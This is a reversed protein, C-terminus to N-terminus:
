NNDEKKPAPAPLTPPRVPNVETQTVGTGSGSAGPFQVIRSKDGEIITIRPGVGEIKPQTVVETKPAEKKVVPPLLEVPPHEEVDVRAGTGTLLGQANVKIADSMQTDGYKRLALSLPGLEKALQVKLVDEPKLAVTVVHGPMAQGQGNANSQQDVALVLVNQLLVHAFSDTDTGRRITHMIDVRSMPLSAFGAASAEMNVRIGIARFGNSLAWAIGADKDSHLDEPTIFDGARLSRKLMKNKLEEVKTIANKPEEGKIYAKEQLLDDFNKLPQGQDINKRAVLVTVTEQEASQQREALLRSTMYSAGLGCAVAVVMLILTKPKM